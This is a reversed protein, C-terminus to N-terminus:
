QSGITGSMGERNGPNTSQTGYKRQSLNQSMDLQVLASNNMKDRKKIMHLIDSQGM